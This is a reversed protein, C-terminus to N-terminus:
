YSACWAFRNFEGDRSFTVGMFHNSNEVCFFACGCRSPHTRHFGVIDAPRLEVLLLTMSDRYSYPRYVSALNAFPGVYYTSSENALSGIIYLKVM